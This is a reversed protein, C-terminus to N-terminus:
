NKQIERKRGQDKRFALGLRKVAERIRPAPYEVGTQWTVYSRYASITIQAKDAWPHPLPNDEDHELCSIRFLALAAEIPSVAKGKVVHELVDAMHRLVEPNGQRIGELVRNTILNKRGEIEEQDRKLLKQRTARWEKKGATPNAKFFLREAQEMLRKTEEPTLQSRIEKMAQYLDGMSRLSGLQAKELQCDPQDEPSIEKLTGFRVRGGKKSAKKTKNPRKM